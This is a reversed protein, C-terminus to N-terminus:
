IMPTLAQGNNQQSLEMQPEDQNGSDFTATVAYIFKFSGFEAKIWEIEVETLKYKNFKLRLGSSGFINLKRVFEEDGAAQQGDHQSIGVQPEDSNGNDFTATVAYIFKFNGYEKKIWEIEGESLQYKEIKLRLDSSGFVTLKRVFDQGGAAQQGDHQSIGM